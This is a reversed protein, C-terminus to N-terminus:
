SSGYAAERTAESIAWLEMCFEPDEDWACEGCLVREGFSWEDDIRLPEECDSCCWRSL